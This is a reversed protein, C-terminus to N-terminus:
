WFYRWINQGYRNAGLEECLKKKEASDKVKAVKLEFDASYPIIVSHKEHADVWQKIKVLWKNKKRVYDAQSLNVLYIVQKATLLLMDNLFEIEQGSWM